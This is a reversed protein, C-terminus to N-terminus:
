KESLQDIKNAILLLPKQPFREKIKDLESKVSPGSVLFDEASHLLIVVQSQDIKEFTKKIGLGEIIDETDGFEGGYRYIPFWRRWYTIEDEISDRTTGAIDSM